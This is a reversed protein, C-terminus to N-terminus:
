PSIHELATGSTGTRPAPTPHTPLRGVQWKPRRSKRPRRCATKAGKGRLKRPKQKRATHSEPMFAESNSLATMTVSRSQRQLREAVTTGLAGLGRSRQGNLRQGRAQKHGGEWSSKVSNNRTTGKNTNQQQPKAEPQIVGRSAAAHHVGRGQAADLIDAAAEMIRQGLTPTAVRRTMPLPGFALTLM